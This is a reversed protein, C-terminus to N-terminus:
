DSPRPWGPSPPSTPFDSRPHEGTMLFQRRQVPDPAEAVCAAHDAEMTPWVAKSSPSTAALFGVIKWDGFVDDYPASAPGEQRIHVSDSQNNPAILTLRQAIIGASGSSGDEIVPRFENGDGEEALNYLYQCVQVTVKSDSEEASRLHFRVNGILPFTLPYDTRPRRNRADIDGSAPLENPPVAAQFGPYADDIKGTTEAIFRSEM